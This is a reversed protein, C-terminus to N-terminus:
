GDLPVVNTIFLEDVGLRIRIVQEWSRIAGITLGDSSTVDVNGASVVLNGNKRTETAQHVALYHKM